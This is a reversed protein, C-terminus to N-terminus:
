ALPWSRTRSLASIKLAGTDPQEYTWDVAGTLRRSLLGIDFRLHRTRLDIQEEEPTLLDVLLTALGANRFHRAVRRNRPSHRSSGSGHAFLVIGCANRPMGLNGELTIGATDVHVLRGEDERTVSLIGGKRGRSDSADHPEDRTLPRSYSPSKPM